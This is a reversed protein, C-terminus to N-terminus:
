PVEGFFFPFTPSSKIINFLDLHNTKDGFRDGVVGIDLKGEGDGGDYVVTL